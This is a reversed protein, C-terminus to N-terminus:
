QYQHGWDTTMVMIMATLLQMVCRQNQKLSPLDVFTGVVKPSNSGKTSPGGAVLDKSRCGASERVRIDSESRLNVVVISCAVQPSGFAPYISQTPRSAIPMMNM